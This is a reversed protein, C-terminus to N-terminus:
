APRECVCKSHSEIYPLFRMLSLICSVHSLSQRLTDSVSLKIDLNFDNHISELHLLIFIFNPCMPLEYM